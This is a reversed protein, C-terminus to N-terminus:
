QTIKSVFRERNIIYRVHTGEGIVGKSDEAVVAFTLKRGEVATLTATATITDALPTPRLHAVSIQAGVTSEESSIEDAVALMAANEMLMIMVPTALVPLDGSGVNQALHGEEVVMRSTYTLGIEM